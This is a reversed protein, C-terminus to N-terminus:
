GNDKNLAYSIINIEHFHRKAVVVTPDSFRVDSYRFCRFLVKVQGMKLHETNLNHDSYQVLNLETNLYRVMRPDSLKPSNLYWVLGTNLDGSYM